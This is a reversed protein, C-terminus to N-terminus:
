KDSTLKLDVFGNVPVQRIRGKLPEVPISLLTKHAEQEDDPILMPLTFDPKSISLPKLFPKMGQVLDRYSAIGREVKRGFGFLGKRRVREILVSKTIPLLIPEVGNLNIVTHTVQTEEEYLIKIDPVQVDEEDDEELKAKLHHKISMYKWLTNSFRSELYPISGDTKTHETIANLNERQWDKYVESRVFMDPKDYNSKSQPNLIQFLMDSTFSELQTTAEMAYFSPCLYDITCSLQAARYTDYANSATEEFGKSCFSYLCRATTYPNQYTIRLIPGDQKLTYNKKTKFYNRIEGGTIESQNSRVLYIVFGM